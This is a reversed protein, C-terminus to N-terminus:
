PVYEMILPGDVDLYVYICLIIDYILMLVILSSAHNISAYVNINISSVSYHIRSYFPNTLLLCEDKTIYVSYVEYVIFM